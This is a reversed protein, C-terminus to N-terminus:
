KILDMETLIRKLESKEETSMTGTPAMCPGAEIGQLELAEKIVTPFSGLTFALRLPVLKLQAEYAGELDGAIYKDYIEACLKPAM